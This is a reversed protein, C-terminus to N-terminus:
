AGRAWVLDSAPVPDVSLRGENWCLRRVGEARAGLFAEVQVRFRDADGTTFLETSPDSGRRLGPDLRRALAQAPDVFRVPLEPPWVSRLAPELFPYHTCGHVVVDCGAEILPALRRRAAATTQPGDLRGAEVLPVFEPCAVTTVSADPRLRRIQSPYAGSRVTGDTALVGIRGTRSLEAAAQAGAQLVGQVASAGHIARADELAVASCINCAMWVAEAGGDFLFRCQALAFQRIEELAREGYPVHAQDAIVWIPVDSHRARIARLVSLGGVGSDFLGLM